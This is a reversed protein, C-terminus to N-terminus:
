QKMGLMQLSEGPETDIRISVSYGPNTESYLQISQKHGAYGNKGLEITKSGNMLVANVMPPLTYSPIHHLRLSRWRYAYHAALHTRGQHDSVSIVVPLEHKVAARSATKLMHEINDRAIDVDVRASMRELPPSAFSLVIALIALAAFLEVLTIGRVRNKGPDPLM